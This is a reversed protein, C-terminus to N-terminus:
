SNESCLGEVASRVEAVLGDFDGEYARHRARVLVDVHVGAADLDPLLQRRVIERLRRKLLNRRVIRRGHKPVILGLRSRSAPSAALFVDLHKTRKRKGRELLDRIESSLRIRGERPLHEVRGSTEAVVQRRDGSGVAGTREQSSSEADQPWRSDEHSGPVRAQEGAQPKPTQIDAENSGAWNMSTCRKFILKVLYSCVSLVTLPLRRKPTNIPGFDGRLDSRQCKWVAETAEVGGLLSVTTLGREWSARVCGGIGDRWEL